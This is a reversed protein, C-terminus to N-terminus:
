TWRDLRKVVAELVIGTGLVVVVVATLASAAVWWVVGPHEESM